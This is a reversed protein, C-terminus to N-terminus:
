TINIKILYGTYYLIVVNSLNISSTMGIVILTNKIIYIIPILTVKFNLYMKKKKLM